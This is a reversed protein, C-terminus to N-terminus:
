LRDRRDLEPPPHAIIRLCPEAGQSLACRCGDTFPQLKERTVGLSRRSLFIRRGELTQLTCASLGPLDIEIIWESVQPLLLSGCGLFLFSEGTQDRIM